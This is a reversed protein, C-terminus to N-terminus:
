SGSDLESLRQSELDCLSDETFRNQFEITLVALLLGLLCYQVTHLSPPVLLSVRLRNKRSWVNPSIQGDHIDKESRSGATRLITFDPGYSFDSYAFFHNFASYHFSSIIVTPEKPSVPRADKSLLRTYKRTPQKVISMRRGPESESAMRTPTRIPKSAPLPEAYTDLVVMEVDGVGSTKKSPCRIVMLLEVLTLGVFIFCVIFWVDIARYGAVHPLNLSLISWQFHFIFFFRIEDIEFRRVHILLFQLCGAGLLARVGLADTSLYFALWSLLVLTFSPIFNKMM